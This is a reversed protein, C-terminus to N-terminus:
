FAVIRLIPRGNLIRPSKNKNIDLLYAEYEDRFEVWEDMDCEFKLKEVSHKNINFKTYLTKRLTEIQEPTIEKTKM